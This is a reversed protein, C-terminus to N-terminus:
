GIAIGVQMCSIVIWSLTTQRNTRSSLVVGCSLFSDLTMVSSYPATTEARPHWVINEVTGVYPVGEDAADAAKYIQVQRVSASHMPGLTGERVRAAVDAGLETIVTSKGDWWMGLLRMEFYMYYATPLMDLEVGLLLLRDEGRRPQTGRQIHLAAGLALQTSHPSPRPAQVRVPSQPTPLATVVPARTTVPLPPPSPPRPMIGPSNRTAMLSHAKPSATFDATQPREEDTVEGSSAMYCHDQSRTVM